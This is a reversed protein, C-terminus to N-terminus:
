FRITVYWELMLAESSDYDIPNFDGDASSIRAGLRLAPNDIPIVDRYSLTGFNPNEVPSEWSDDTLYLYVGFEGITQAPITGANWVFKHRSSYESYGSSKFLVRSQTDPAIDIKSVLDSMDPSTPTSTDNGARATYSRSLGVAYFPVGSTVASSSYVLKSSTIFAEVISSVFYRTWKNKGKAYLENGLYIKFKGEIKAEYEEKIREDIKPNMSDGWVIKLLNL